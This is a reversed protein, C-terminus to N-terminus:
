AGWQLNQDVKRKVLGLRDVDQGYEVMLLRAYDYLSIAEAIGLARRAPKRKRTFQAFDRSDM